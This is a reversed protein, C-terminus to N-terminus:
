LLRRQCEDGRVLKLLRDATASRITRTLRAVDILRDWAPVRLASLDHDTRKSQRMQDEATQLMSEYERLRERTRRLLDDFDPIM